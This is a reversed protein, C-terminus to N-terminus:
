LGAHCVINEASFDLSSYSSTHIGGNEWGSSTWGNTGNSADGNVVLEKGYYDNADQAQSLCLTLLCSALLLTRKM